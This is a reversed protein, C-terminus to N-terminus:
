ARLLIMYLSSHRHSRLSVPAKTDQLRLTKPDRKRRIEMVQGVAVLLLYPHLTQIRWRMDPITNAMILEVMKWTRRLSLDRTLPITMIM